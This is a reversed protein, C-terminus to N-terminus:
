NVEYVTEYGDFEELRTRIVANGNVAYLWGNVMFQPNRFLANTANTLPKVNNTAINYRAITFQLDGFATFMLIIYGGDSGYQIKAHIGPSTGAGVIENFGTGLLQNTYPATLLQRRFNTTAIAFNAGTGEIYYVWDGVLYQTGYFHPKYASSWPPVNTNPNVTGPYPANYYWKNLENNVVKAFQPRFTNEIYRAITAFQAGDGYYISRRVREVFVQKSWTQPYFLSANSEGSRVWVTSVSDTFYDFDTIGYTRFQGRNQNVITGTQTLRLRYGIGGFTVFPRNINLYEGPNMQTVSGYLYVLYADDNHFHGVRAFQKSSKLPIFNNIDSSYGLMGTITEARGTISALTQTSILTEPYQYVKVNYETGLETSEFIMYGDYTYDYYLAWLSKTFKATGTDLDRVRTIPATGDAFGVRVLLYNSEQDFAIALISEASGATGGLAHSPHYLGAASHSGYTPANHSMGAGGLRAAGTGGM